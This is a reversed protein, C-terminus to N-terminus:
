PTATVSPRCWWWRHARINAAFAHLAPIGQLGPLHLDLLVLDLDSARAIAACQPLGPGAAGRGRRAITRCARGDGRPGATITSSSSKM